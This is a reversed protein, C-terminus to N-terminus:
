RRKPSSKSSVYDIDILHSFWSVFSGCTVHLYIRDDFVEGTYYFKLGSIMSFDFSSPFIFTINSGSVRCSELSVFFYNLKDNM